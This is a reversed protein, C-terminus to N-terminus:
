AGHALSTLATAFADVGSNRLPVYPKDLRRCVDKVKRLAEHSVYEVPFVVADARQLLNGLRGISEEMGGDHYAFRGNRDEVLRRLHAANRNRGGVFLICRGRLDGASTAVVPSATTRHTM